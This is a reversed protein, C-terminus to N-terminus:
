FNKEANHHVAEALQNLRQKTKEMLDPKSLQHEIMSMQGQLFM